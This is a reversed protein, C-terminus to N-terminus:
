ECHTINGDLLETAQAATFSLSPSLYPIGWGLGRIIFLIGVVLAFYPLFRNVRLRIGASFANGSIMLLIMVPFTGLGFFFMYAM